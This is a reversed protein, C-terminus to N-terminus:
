YTPINGNKKRLISIFDNFILKTGIINHRKNNPTRPLYDNIYTLEFQFADSFSYGLGLTLQNRDFFDDGTVTSKTKFFVEDSVMGYLSGKGFKVVTIPYVLKIMERFRYVINFTPSDDQLIRDEIRFRGTLVYDKRIIYYIGQVSFRIEPLEKQNIEPVEHNYIYGVYGSIKWKKSAYYHLWLWGSVQSNKDFPNSEDTISTYTHSLNLELATKKGVVRNFEYTNEFQNRKQTQAFCSFSLLLWICVNARIYYNIKLFLADKKYFM